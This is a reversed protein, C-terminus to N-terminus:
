SRKEVIKIGDTPRYHSYRVLHEISKNTTKRLSPYEHLIM